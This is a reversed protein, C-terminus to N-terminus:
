FEQQYDSLPSGTFLKEQLQEVTESIVELTSMCVKKQSWSQIKSSLMRGFVAESAASVLYVPSGSGPLQLGDEEGEEGENGGPVDKVVDKEGVLKPFVVITKLNKGTDHQQGM